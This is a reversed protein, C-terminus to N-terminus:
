NERLAELQAIRGSLADVHAEVNKQYDALSSQQRLRARLLEGGVLEALQDSRDMLRETAADLRAEVQTELTGFRGELTEMRPELKGLRAELTEMRLELKGLRGELAETRLELKDLRGELAEMRFELKDLREELTDMRLQLKDLRAIITGLQDEVRVYSRRIEAVHGVMEAMQNSLQELLARNDKEQM